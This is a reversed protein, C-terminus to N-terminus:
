MGFIPPIDGISNFGDATQQNQAGLPPVPISQTAYQPQQAQSGLPPVPIGSMGQPAVPPAPTTPITTPMSPKPATSQSYSQVAGSNLNISPANNLADEESKIRNLIDTGVELTNQIKQLREDRVQRINEPTVQIGLETTLEQCLRTLEQTNFEIGARIQSAKEQYQKLTANYKKVEEINVGPMM